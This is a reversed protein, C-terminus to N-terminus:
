RQLAALAQVAAVIEAPTLAAFGLLWGDQRAPGRYLASLSPTLLGASTARRTWLSEEKPPLLAAIQLGGPSPQPRLWDGVRAQLENM